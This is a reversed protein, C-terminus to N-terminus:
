CGFLAYLNVSFFFFVFCIRACVNLSVPIKKISFTLNRVSSNGLSKVLPM